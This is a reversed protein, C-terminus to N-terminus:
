ARSLGVESAPELWHIRKPHGLDYSLDPSVRTVVAVVASARQVDRPHRLGHYGDRSVKFVEHLAMAQV